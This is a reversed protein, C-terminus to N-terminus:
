GAEGEFWGQEAFVSYDEWDLMLTFICAYTGDYENVDSVMNIKFSVDVEPINAQDYAGWTQPTKTVPHMGPILQGNEDYPLELENLKELDEAKAQNNRYVTTRARPPARLGARTLSKETLQKTKRNRIGRALSCVSMRQVQTRPSLPLRTHRSRTSCHSQQTRTTSRRRREKSEREREREKEDQRRKDRRTEDRRTEDRRIETGRECETRERLGGM